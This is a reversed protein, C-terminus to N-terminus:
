RVEVHWPEGPVPFHLGLEDALQKAKGVNALSTGKINVDAADGHEHNSTGPKAALNGTGNLYKQYLVEQEQRTRNGSVITLKEGMREGLKALRQTLDADLGELDGSLWRKADAAPADSAKDPKDSKEAKDSKDVVPAAGPAGSAGAAYENSGAPSAAAGSCGCSSAGTGGGGSVGAVPQLAASLSSLAATLEGLISTLQEAGVIGAAGAVATGGGGLSSVPGGSAGAVASAVAGSSPTSGADQNTAPGGVSTRAPTSVPAAITCSM